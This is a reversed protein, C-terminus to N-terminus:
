EELHPGPVEARFEAINEPLDYFPFYGKEMPALPLPGIELFQVDMAISEEGIVHAVLNIVMQKLTDLAEEDGDFKDYLKLAVHIGLYNPYEEATLLVCWLDNPDLVDDGFNFRLRVHKPLPQTLAVFDWNKAQPALAVLERANKFFPRIGNASIVMTFGPEGSMRTSVTPTLGTCYPNLAQFLQDALEQGQEREMSQMFELKLLNEQVWAWFAEAHQKETATM